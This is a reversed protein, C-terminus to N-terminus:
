EEDDPAPEQPTYWELELPDTIENVRHHVNAIVNRAPQDWSLEQLRALMQNVIVLGTEFPIEGVADVEPVYSWPGAALHMGSLYLWTESRTDFTSARRRLHQLLDSLISYLEDPDHWWTPEQTMGAGDRRSLM